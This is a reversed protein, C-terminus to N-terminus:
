PQPHRARALLMAGAALLLTAAAVAFPALSEAGTTALSGEASPTTTPTTPVHTAPPATAPATPTPTATPAMTATPPVTVTPTPTPTPTPAPPLTGIGIGGGQQTVTAVHEVSSGNVNASNGFTQGFVLPGTAKTQYSLRYRADQSIPGAFTFTYSMLDEGISVSYEAPDLDVLAGDGTASAFSFSGPVIEHPAFGADAKLADTITLTQQGAFKSGPVFIRWTMTGSATVPLSDKILSSVPPEAAPEGIGGGPLPVVTVVGDVIFDVGDKETVESAEAWLWLHGGVDELGAVYDTLTCAVVPAEDDTVTCNAIVSDPDDPATVTFAGAGAIGFEPPLTIGFTEGATAGNPVSWEGDIRLWEWKKAGDSSSGTSTTITITSPDVAGPYTFGAEAAIASPIGGALALATTTM